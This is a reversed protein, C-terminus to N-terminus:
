PLSHTADPVIRSPAAHYVSLAEPFRRPEIRILLGASSDRRASKGGAEHAQSARSERKRAAREVQKAATPLWTLDDITPYEHSCAYLSKRCSFLLPHVDLVSRAVGRRNPFALFLFAVQLPPRKM